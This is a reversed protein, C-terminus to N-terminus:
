RAPVGIPQRAPIGPRRPYRAPAPRSQEIVVFRAANVPSLVVDQLKGGLTSIAQAAEIVEDQVGDGKPLIAVGGPRLFPLTLEALTALRAVARSVVIAYEGRFAPDRALEEARGHLARVNELGLQRAFGALVDVKKATADLLDVQLDPRAIALPIGPVGGGSGVDLLRAEGAPLLPLIALSEAILRSEVEGPDRMATLNISTNAALLLTGYRRLSDISAQSLNLSLAALAHEITTPADSDESRGALM